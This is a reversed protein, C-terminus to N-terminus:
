RRQDQEVYVHEMPTGQEAWVRAQENRRVRRREMKRQLKEEKASVVGGEGYKHVTLGVVAYMIVVIAEELNAMFLQVIANGNELNFIHNTHFTDLISYLVRSGILPLALVVAVLIRKEGRATKNIEFMSYLTLIVLIVYIVVFIGIGWKTDTKGSKIESPTSSSSAEDSGGEICLILAITCPLQLLQIVRSRRADASAKSADIYLRDSAEVLGFKVAATTINGRVTLDSGM